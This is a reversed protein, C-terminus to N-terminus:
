SAAPSQPKLLRGQAQLDSYAGMAFRDTMGAIYDAVIRAIGTQGKASALDGQWRAPLEEPNALYYPFLAEVIRTVEARKEMVRPARYMEKFLFSKIERLAAVMEDSFQIVPAGFHRIDDVSAFAGAILCKRSETIVDEVM